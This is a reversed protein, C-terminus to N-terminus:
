SSIHFSRLHSSNFALLVASSLLLNASVLCYSNSVKEGPEWRNMHGQTTASHSSTGVGFGLVLALYWNCISSLWLEAEKSKLM